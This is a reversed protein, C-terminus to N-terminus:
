LKKLIVVANDTNYKLYKIIDVIKIQGENGLFFKKQINNNYKLYVFGYFWL